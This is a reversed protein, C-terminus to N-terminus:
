CRQFNLITPPHPGRCKFSCHLYNNPKQWCYHCTAHLRQTHAGVSSYLIGTEDLNYLAAGNDKIRLEELTKNLEIYYDEIHKDKLCFKRKDLRKPTKTRLEPFRKVFNRYWTRTCPESELDLDRIQQSCLQNLISWVSEKTKTSLSALSPLRPM